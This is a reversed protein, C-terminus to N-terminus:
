LVIGCRALQAADALPLITPLKDCRCGITTVVWASGAPCGKTIYPPPPAPPEGPLAPLVVDMVIPEPALVPRCSAKLAVAPNRPKTKVVFEKFGDPPTLKGGEQCQGPDCYAERFQAAELPTLPRSGGTWGVEGDPGACTFGHGGAPCFPFYGKPSVYATPGFTGRLRQLKDDIWNSPHPTTPPAFFPDPVAAGQQYAQQEKRTLPFVEGWGADFLGAARRAGVLTGAEPGGADFQRATKRPGCLRAVAVIIEQATPTHDWRKVVRGGCETYPLGTRRPPYRWPLRPARRRLRVTGGPQAPPLV